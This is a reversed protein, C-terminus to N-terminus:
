AVFLLCHAATSDVNVHAAPLRRLALDFWLDGMNRREERWDQGERINADSIVLGSTVQSAYGLAMTLLALCGETDDSESVTHNILHDSCRKLRSCSMTPYAFNLSHSFADLVIRVESAAVFPYLTTRRLQYPERSQELQFVSRM